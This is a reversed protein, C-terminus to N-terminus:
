KPAEVLVNIGRAAVTLERWTEDDIPVGNPSASPARDPTRPRRPDAGARGPQAAALRHHLRDDGRDRRHLWARDVLRSPDIVITLMGNTATNRARGSPGCRAAAPVLRRGADRLYLRACLGQARWLDILAGRPQRYMAAPDTTPQGEGDLLIGPKIQEGKNRAVRVKGMAVVSTAMDLSSRGTPSPARTARHLGPQHQLACRQRAVAGRGPARRHRQRFPVLRPGGRRVDRWLHRGPRYPAANRLAVVAVGTERAKAIGLLRRKARPSRAGPASATM